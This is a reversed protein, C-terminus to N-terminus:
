TGSTWTLILTMLILREQNSLAWIEYQKSNGGNGFLSILVHETISKGSLTVAVQYRWRAFNSANGTNLYFKRGVGSIKGSFQDAYDGM